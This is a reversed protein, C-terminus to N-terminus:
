TLAISGCQLRVSRARPSAAARRASTSRRRRAPRPPPSTRARLAPRDAPGDSPRHRDAAPPPRTPTARDVRSSTAVAGSRAGTATTTAAAMARATDAITARSTPDAGDITGSDIIPRLSEATTAATSIAVGTTPRPREAARLAPSRSPAHRPPQPSSSERRWHSCACASARDSRSPAGSDFYADAAHVLGSSLRDYRAAM